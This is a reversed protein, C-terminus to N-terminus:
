GEQERFTNRLYPVAVLLLVLMLMIALASAYGM